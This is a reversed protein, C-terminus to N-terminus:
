TASQLNPMLVSYRFSSVYAKRKSQVDIQNPQRGMAGEEQVATNCSSVLSSRKGFVDWCHSPLSGSLRRGLMGGKTPSNPENKM